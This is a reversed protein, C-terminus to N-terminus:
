PARKYSETSFLYIYTETRDINDFSFFITYKGTFRGGWLMNEGPKTSPAM